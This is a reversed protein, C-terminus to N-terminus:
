AARCGYLCSSFHFRFHLLFLVHRRSQVSVHSVSICTSVPCFSPGKQLASVPSPHAQIPVPCMKIVLLLSGKECHLLLQQCEQQPPSSSKQPCFCAIFGESYQSVCSAFPGGKQCASNGWRTARNGFGIPMPCGQLRHPSHVRRPLPLPQPQPLHATSPVHQCVRSRHQPTGPVMTLLWM